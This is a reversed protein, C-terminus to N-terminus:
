GRYLSLRTGLGEGGGTISRKCYAGWGWAGGLVWFTTLIQQYICHVERVATFNAERSPNGLMKKLLNPACFRVSTWSIQSLGGSWKEEHSPPTQPRGKYGYCDPRIAAYRDTHANWICNAVLLLSEPTLAIHPGGHYPSWRGWIGLSIPVGGLGMESTIYPGGWRKPSGPLYPGVQEYVDPALGQRDNILLTRWWHYNYFSFCLM